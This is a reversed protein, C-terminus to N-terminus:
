SSILEPLPKGILYGQAYDVGLGKLLELTEEQEVFEAVTKIGMGQAVDVIAKVFLQNKPSRYLRKIFSGDIKIYDIAMDKLYFFSSFGSGFDDLAFRCGMSTLENIFWVANTVNQVAVTETIEFILHNPNAKLESISSKLFSLLDKDGLDKGSLNINFFLDQQKQKMLVQTKMIKRAVIRDISGVLGFQEAVDIFLRPFIVTNNEERIRVLGEYHRIKNNKLDVIPQYWVELRNNKLASEVTEKLKIKSHIKELDHDEPSYIHYCNKGKDKARFMSVDAKTLLEKSTLGDDPYFVIGISVTLHLLVNAFAANEVNKRVEEAINLTEERNIYPYFIAFEDGSIRGITFIEKGEPNSKNKSYNDLVNKLIGAIKHLCEDGIKHGYTENIARFYDINILMFVSNQKKGSSLINNVNGMFSSRNNVGTMEDYSSLFQIKEESMIKDTVDEQVGIFHNIKGESDKIPSITCYAWYVEGDKKKNKIVGQWKKDENIIDLLNKDGYDSIEGLLIEFYEGIMENKLYGTFKEYMPNVYEILGNTDSFFMINTTSQEMATSLIKVEKQSKKYETIDRIFLLYAKKGEWKTEVFSIEGIGVKGKDRVIDVETLKNNIIPLGVYKDKLDEIKGGFINKATSNIFRAIGNKDLVIIGTLSGEVINLFNKNSEEIIEKAEEIDSILKKTPRMDRAVGIIGLVDGEKNKMISGSFSVPVNHGSKTKYYIDFNKHKNLKELKSYKEISDASAINEDILRNLSKKLKSIFLKLKKENEQSLKGKLGEELVHKTMHLYIIEDKEKIPAAVVNVLYKKGFFDYHTHMEVQLDYVDKAELIPCKHGPPQCINDSNHLIKFCYQGIIDEKKFGTNKLFSNNAEIIKFDSSILCAEEDLENLIEEESFIMSAPKGIIEEESYELLKLTADNVTRIMGDPNVVILSEGMNAIISDIYEKDVLLSLSIRLDRIMQNFSLSLDAIEDSSSIEIEHALNGKAVLKTAEVLRYIPKALARNMILSFIIVTGIGLFISLVLFLKMLNTSRIIEKNKIEMKNHIYELAAWCLQSLNDAQTLMIEELEKTSTGSRHGMKIESQYGIAAQRLLKMGFEIEKIINKVEEDSTSNKIEEIQRSANNILLLAPSIVESRGSSFNYVSDKCDSIIKSLDNWKDGTLEETKLVASLNDSNNKLATYAILCGIVYLSILISFGLARVHRYSINM